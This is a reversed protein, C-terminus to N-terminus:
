STLVACSFNASGFTKILNIRVFTGGHTKGLRKLHSIIEFFRERL